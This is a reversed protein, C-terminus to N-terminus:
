VSVEMEYDPRHLSEVGGEGSLAEKSSFVGDALM